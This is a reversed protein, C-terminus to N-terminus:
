REAAHLMTSGPAATGRLLGPLSPRARKRSLEQWNDDIRECDQSNHLSVSSESYEAHMMKQASLVPAVSSVKNTRPVTFASQDKDTGLHEINPQPQPQPKRKPPKNQTTPINELTPSTQTGSTKLIKSIPTLECAKNISSLYYEELQLVKNTILNVSDIFETKFALFQEILLTNIKSMLQAEFEIQLNKLERVVSDKLDNGTISEGTSGMTTQAHRPKARVTVNDSTQMSVDLCSATSTTNLDQMVHPRVQTHSNDRKPQRCRCEGCIWSMKLEVSMNKLVDTTINACIIDFIQKCKACKMYPGNGSVETRCGACPATRSAM